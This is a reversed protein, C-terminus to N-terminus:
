RKIIKTTALVNSGQTLRLIYTGNILDNSTQISYTNSGKKASMNDSLVLMGNMDYLGLTIESTTTSEYQITFSTTFPNPWVKSISASEVEPEIHVAVPNFTESDGNYDTQRLRYFSLGLEPDSDVYKYKMEQTTTGDGAVTGIAEFTNGDTSREVTFYDNDRQTLVTWNVDVADKAKDFTVKFVGLEIPLNFTTGISVFQSPNNQNNYETLIRGPSVSINYLRIEDLQGDFYLNNKNGNFSSAESGDGIFGYRTTGTGFSNGNTAVSQVLVGDIYIKKTSGDFTAYVHHWQGDNVQGTSGAHFDNIGNGTVRSSFSVKGNGHVYFNFYESRDFDLISWNNFTGNTNYSTKVWASTSMQTIQGSGNFYKDQVAFYDNSGDFDIAPGIKGDVLDSSTMNGYSHGNYTGAADDLQSNSPDNNMHWVADHSASWVNDTSYDTNITNNGCTIKLETDVNHYLVPLKVWAVLAGTTPDYSEIQHDLRLDNEGAFLIDYGNQNTAHGGYNTTRLDMLELTVLLPFDVLDVTDAVMAQDVLVISEWAHGSVLPGTGPTFMAKSENPAVVAATGLVIKIVIGLIIIGSIATFILLRRLRLKTKTSTSNNNKM